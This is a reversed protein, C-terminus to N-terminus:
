GSKQSLAKLLNKEPDELKHINSLL